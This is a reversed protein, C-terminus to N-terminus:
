GHGLESHQMYGAPPTQVCKPETGISVTHSVVRDWRHGLPQSFIPRTGRRLSNDKLFDLKRRLMLRGSVSAMETASDQLRGWHLKLDNPVFGLLTEEQKIEIGFALLLVVGPVLREIIGMVLGVELKAYLRIVPGGDRRLRSPIM